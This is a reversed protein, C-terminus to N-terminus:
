DFAVFAFRAGRHRQTVKQRPTNKWLGTGMLGNGLVRRRGVAQEATVEQEKRELRITFFPQMKHM